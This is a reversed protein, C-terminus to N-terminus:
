LYVQGDLYAETVPITFDKLNRSIEAKKFEQIILEWHPAANLLASKRVFGDSRVNIIRENCSKRTM